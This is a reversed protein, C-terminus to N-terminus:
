RQGELTRGAVTCSGAAIRPNGVPYGSCIASRIRWRCRSVGTDNGCGADALVTGGQAGSQWAECLQAITIQPKTTFEVADPVFAPGSGGQPIM